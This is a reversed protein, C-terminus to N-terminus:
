EERKPLPVIVVNWGAPLFSVVPEINGTRTSQAFAGLEIDYKKLIEDIEGGATLTKREQAQRLQAKLSAEPNETVELVKVEEPFGAAHLQKEVNKEVSKAM